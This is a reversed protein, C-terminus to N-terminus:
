ALGFHAHKDSLVRISPALQRIQAQTQTIEPRPAGKRPVRGRPHIVKPCWQFFTTRPHPTKTSVTFLKRIDRDTTDIRTMGWSLLSHQVVMCALRYTRLAPPM